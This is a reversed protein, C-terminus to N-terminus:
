QGDSGPIDGLAQHRRDNECVAAPCSRIRVPNGRLERGRLSFWACRRCYRTGPTTDVRLMNHQPTTTSTVVGDKVQFGETLIPAELGDIGVAKLPLPEM